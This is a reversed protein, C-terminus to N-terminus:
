GQNRLEGVSSIRLEIKFTSTGKDKLHDIPGSLALSTFGGDSTGLQRLSVLSGRWCSWLM